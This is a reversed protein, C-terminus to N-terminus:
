CRQKALASNIDSVQEQSPEFEEFFRLALTARLISLEVTGPGRFSPDRTVRNIADQVTKGDKWRMMTVAILVEIEVVTM